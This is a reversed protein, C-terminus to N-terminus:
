AIRSSSSFLSAAQQVEPWSVYPSGPQGWDLQIWDLQIWDLQIWDLQSWDLQIWDLHIWDLHFLIRWFLWDGTSVWDSISAWNSISAWERTSPPTTELPLPPDPLTSISIWAEIVTKM